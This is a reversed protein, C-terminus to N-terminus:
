RVGPSKKIGCAIEFGIAERTQVVVKQASVLQPKEFYQSKEMALMFEAVTLYNFAGGRIRIEAKGDASGELSDFWLGKPVLQAFQKFVESWLVRENLISQIVAAKEPSTGAPVTIGLDKYMSELHQRLSQKKVTLMDLRSRLDLVQKLQWGFIGLWALVFLGSVLAARGFVRAPRKEEPPLLNIYDKTKKM